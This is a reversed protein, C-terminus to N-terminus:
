IGQGNCPPLMFIDYYLNQEVTQPPEWQLAFYNTVPIINYLILRGESPEEVISTQSSPRSKFLYGFRVSTGTVIGSFSQHEKVCTQKYKKLEIFTKITGQLLQLIEQLHRDTLWVTVADLSYGANQIEVPIVVEEGVRLYHTKLRSM